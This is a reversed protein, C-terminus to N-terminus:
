EEKLATRLAVLGRRQLSKIAPVSRGLAAAVEKLSFGILFRLIVVNQQVPKLSQLASQVREANLRDELQKEPWTTSTHGQELAHEARDDLPVQSYRSRKRAHDIVLNHAIRYLWAKFPIGRSRYRPLNAIVREFVESSLDEALHRDGVRAWLYRFIPM